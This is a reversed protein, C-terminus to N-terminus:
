AIHKWLNITCFNDIEISGRHRMIQSTGECL